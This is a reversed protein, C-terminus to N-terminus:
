YHIEVLGMTEQILLEYALPDTLSIEDDGLTKEFDMGMLKYSNTDIKAMYSYGKLMLNSIPYDHKWGLPNYKGFGYFRFTAEWDILNEPKVQNIVFVIEYAIELNFEKFLSIDYFILSINEGNDNLFFGDIKELMEEYIPPFDKDYTTSIEQSDLYVSLYKDELIIKM